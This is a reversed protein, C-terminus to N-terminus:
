TQVILWHSRRRSTNLCHYEINPKARSSFPSAFFSDSTRAIILVRPPPTLTTGLGASPFASGKEKWKRCCALVLKAICRERARCHLIVGVGARIKVRVRERLEQERQLCSVTIQQSLDADDTRQVQRCLSCWHQCLLSGTDERFYYTHRSIGNYLSCADNRVLALYSSKEVRTVLFVLREKRAMLAPAM